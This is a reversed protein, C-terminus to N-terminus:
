NEIFGLGGKLLSCGDTITSYLRNSEARTCKRKHNHQRSAPPRHRLHLMERDLTQGKHTPASGALTHLRNYALQRSFLHASLDTPEFGVTPAVKALPKDQQIWVASVSNFVM